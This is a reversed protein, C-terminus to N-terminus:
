ILYLLLVLVAAIQLPSRLLRDAFVSATDIWRGPALFAGVEGPLAVVDAWGFAGRSRVWMLHEALYERYESTVEFLQSQTYGSDALTRM